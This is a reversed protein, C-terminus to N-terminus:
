GGLSTIRQLLWPDKHGLEFARRYRQNAEDVRGLRELAKGSEFWPDAWEPAHMSAQDYDAVAAAPNQASRARARHYYAGADAPYERLVASFDQDAAAMRGMAFYALGRNFLADFAEPDIQLAADFEKLAAAPANMRMHFAGKGLRADLSGPALRLAAFWDAAAQDTMGRKESADARGIFPEVRDPRLAAAANFADWALSPQGLALLAEGLNVQAGFEQSESLSESQIARRCHHAVDGVPADLDACVELSGNAANIASPTLALALASSLIVKKMGRLYRTSAVDGIVHAVLGQFVKLDAIKRGTGGGKRRMAADVVTKRAPASGRM